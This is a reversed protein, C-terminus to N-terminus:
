VRASGRHPGQPVGEYCAVRELLYVLLAGEPPGESERQLLMISLAAGAVVTVVAIAVYSALASRRQARLM